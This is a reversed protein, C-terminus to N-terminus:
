RRRARAPATTDAVDRGALFHADVTEADLARRLRRGRRRARALVARQRHRQADRAVADRRRAAPATGTHVPVGDVYFTTAGGPGDARRPALRRAPERDFARHHVDDRRRPVRGQGGSDFALIWGGAVHQRAAAAVGSEWFFWGELTGTGALAVSAQMEDDVGDFRAATDTDANLGGRAGLTVGGVLAGPASGTQDAASTGSADGLRWYSLLGGTNRVADAYGGVAAPADQAFAGAALVTVWVM